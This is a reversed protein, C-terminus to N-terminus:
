NLNARKAVQKAVILERKLNDAEDQCEAALEDLSDAMTIVEKDLRKAAILKERYDESVREIEAFLEKYEEPPNEIWDQLEGQQQQLFTLATEWSAKRRMDLARIEEYKAKLQRTTKVEALGYVKAKLEGLKM